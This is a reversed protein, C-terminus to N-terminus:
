TLPCVLGQSKELFSPLCIKDPFLFRSSTSRHSALDETIMHWRAHSEFAFQLESSSNILRNLSEVPFKFSQLFSPLTAM